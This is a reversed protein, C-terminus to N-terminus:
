TWRARAENVGTVAERRLARSSASRGAPKGAGDMESRASIRAAARFRSVPADSVGELEETQENEASSAIGSPRKALTARSEAITKM